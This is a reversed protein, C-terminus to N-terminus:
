VGATPMTKVLEPSNVSLLKWQKEGIIAGYSKENKDGIFETRSGTDLTWFQCTNSSGNPINEGPMLYVTRHNMVLATSNIFQEIPLSAM